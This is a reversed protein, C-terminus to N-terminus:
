AKGQASLAVETPFAGGSLERDVVVHVRRPGCEDGDAAHGPVCLVRHGTAVLPLGQRRDRPVRREALYRKLSVERGRVRIRDGPQRARVVLSAAEKETAHVATAQSSTEPSCPGVTVMWGGPLRLSGARPLPQTALPDSARHPGIRLEAFQVAAERAGPLPLRRGSARPRLSLALIKEVHAAGIGHLGGTRTLANRIALRAVARPAEALAARALLVAGDEHRAARAFLEEGLPALVDQEESLLFATTTLLERIRPNFRAELYPLLEWRVRNRLFSRDANSSDERWSLGHEELYTVIDRRSVGLLPRVIDGARPRMAALGLRGSGRLLRLLVTEAQDDRTHAVAIASAAHRRRVERLFAYREERAAAELGLRGARARVDIRTTELPVDLRHCLEHCFAVDDRSDERLGHDLHAAVLRFDRERAIGVLVALMAVSDAGGSLAAVLMQGSALLGCSELTGLASRRLPSVKM